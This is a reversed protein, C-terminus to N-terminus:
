KLYEKMREMDQAIQGIITNYTAVFDNHTNQIKVNAQEIEKRLQDRQQQTQAIQQQLEKIQQELAKEKNDLQPLRQQKDAVQTQRQSRLAANFNDEEKQLAQLYHAASEILQQPSINMSQAMAYASKFRTADDMNMKRLNELAKKFELYDFGPQNAKEMAELLVNSFKETVKGPRGAEAPTQPTADKSPPPPPTSKKGRATGSIGKKKALPESAPGKKGKEEEIIFWSKLNKLMSM